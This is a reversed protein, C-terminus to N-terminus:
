AAVTRDRTPEAHVRPRPRRAATRFAVALERLVGGPDTHLREPLTRVLVVGAATAALHPTGGTAATFQWGLAIEDWWADAEAVRHGDGDRVTVDWGPPPLPGVDLIRRAAPHPSVSSSERLERLALRVEASGRRSGAALETDLEGLTCLGTTVVVRLLRRSREPDESRRAWDLVARAPPAFPVGAIEVPDPVRNTRELVTFPAATTRQAAPVLVHVSKPLPCEIGHASLADAGTVVAQPGLSSAVACLLQHRTPEDRTLLVVGPLLKRWPGDPRCRANIAKASLGARRLEAITIVGTGTSPRLASPRTPRSGSTSNITM